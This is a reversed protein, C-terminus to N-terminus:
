CPNGQLDRWGSEIDWRMLVSATGDGPTDISVRLTACRKPPKDGHLTKVLTEASDLVLGCTTEDDADFTGLYKWAGGNKFELRVPKKLAQPAPM